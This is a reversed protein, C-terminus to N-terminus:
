FKSGTIAKDVHSGELGRPGEGHRRPPKKNQKQGGKEVLNTKILM